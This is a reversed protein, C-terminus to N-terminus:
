TQSFILCSYLHFAPDWHSASRRFLNIQPNVQNLLDSHDIATEAFAQFDQWIQVQALQQALFQSLHQWNTWSTRQDLFDEAGSNPALNIGQQFQYGSDYFRLLCNKQPLHLDCIQAHDQTKSKRQLKGRADLDVVDEFIPLLGNVQQHVETNAFSFSVTQNAQTECVVTIQAAASEIYRVQLVQIQETLTLSRWFAPVGAAQLQQGYGQLEEVSGTRYLRWGRSPILMRATYPDIQMIQAFQQAVQAKAAPPLPELILVGLETNEPVETTTAIAQQQQAQRLDQIRQLGQRALQTIKPGCNTQLLQRYNAEAPDLKHDVEWLRGQYFTAWPDEPSLSKLLRAVELYDHRDFAAALRDPM